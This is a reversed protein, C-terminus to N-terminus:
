MLFSVFMLVDLLKRAPLLPSFDECNFATKSTRRTRRWDGVWLSKSKSGSVKVINIDFNSVKHSSVLILKDPLDVKHPVVCVADPVEFPVTVKHRALCSADHVEDRAGLVDSPHESGASVDVKHGM